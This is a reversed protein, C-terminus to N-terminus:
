KVGNQTQSKFDNNNIYVQEIYSDVEIVMLLIQILQLVIIINNNNNEKM